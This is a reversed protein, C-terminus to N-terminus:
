NISVEFCLSIILLYFIVNKIRVKFLLKLGTDPFTRAVRFTLQSAEEFEQIWNMVEEETKVNAFLVVELGNGTDNCTHVSYKFSVPLVDQM